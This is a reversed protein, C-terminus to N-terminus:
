SKLKQALRRSIAVFNAYQYNEMWAKYTRLEIGRPMIKGVAFGRSEFLAYLDMLSTKSDLNAGGYEFQAFDIFDGSLYDGMGQLAAIEHGEVDIKLLHIHEIKKEKIYEELRVAQVPESRNLSIGIASLNRQHLSALSSGEQDYYIQMTENANSAANQNLIVNPVSAYRKVLSKYCSTTPEFINIRAILERNSTKDLIIQSYDGKNAGIDFIELQKQKSDAFYGTAADIFCEEGNRFFNVNNNNEIWNFLRILLSRFKSRFINARILM